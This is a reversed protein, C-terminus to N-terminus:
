PMVITNNQCATATLICCWCWMQRHIMMHLRTTGGKLLPAVQATSEGGDVAVVPDEVLDLVVDSCVDYVVEEWLHSLGTGDVSRCVM